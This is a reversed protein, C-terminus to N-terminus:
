NFQRFSPHIFDKPANNGCLLRIVPKSFKNVNIGNLAYSLFRACDATRVRHSVDRGCAHDHFDRLLALLRWQENMTNFWSESIIIKNIYSKNVVDRFNELLIREVNKFYSHLSEKTWTKGKIIFHIIYMEDLTAKILENPKWNHIYYNDIVDRNKM